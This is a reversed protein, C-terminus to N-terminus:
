SGARPAPVEIGLRGFQEAALNACSAADLGDFNQCGLSWGSMAVTIRLPLESTAYIRRLVMTAKLSQSATLVIDNNCVLPRYASDVNPAVMELPSFGDNILFRQGARGGTVQLRVDINPNKANALDAQAKFINGDFATPRAVQSRLDLLYFDEGLAVDLSGEVPVETAGQTFTVTLSHIAPLARNQLLAWALRPDTRFVRRAILLPDPTVLAPMTM